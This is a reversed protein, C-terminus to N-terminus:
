GTRRDAVFAPGAAAPGGEADPAPGADAAAVRGYFVPPPHYKLVAGLVDTRDVPERHANGTDLFWGGDADRGLEGVALEGRRTMAAVTTGPAASAARDRDVFIRWGTAVRGQATDIALAGPDDVRVVFVSRGARVDGGEDLVRRGASRAEQAAAGGDRPDDRRWLWYGPYVGAEGDRSLVVGSTRQASAGETGGGSEVTEGGAAVAGDRASLTGSGAPLRGTADVAAVPPRGTLLADVTTGLLAAVKELLPGGPSAITGREVQGVWAASVGIHDAVYQQSMRQGKRLTKVRQGLTSGVTPEGEDM